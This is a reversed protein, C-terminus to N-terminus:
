AQTLFNIEEFTIEFWISIRNQFRIIFYNRIRALISGCCQNPLPWRKKLLLRPGSGSCISSFGSVQRRRCSRSTSPSRSSTPRTGGSDRRGPILTKYNLNMYCIYPPGDRLRSRDLFVPELGEIPSGQGNLQQKGIQAWLEHVELLKGKVCVRSQVFM